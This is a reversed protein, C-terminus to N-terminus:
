RGEGWEARLAADLAARQIADDDALRAVEAATLNLGCGAADADLIRNWPDPPAPVRPVRDQGMGRGLRQWRRRIATESRGLERALDRIRDARKRGCADRILDDEAPRYPPAGSM